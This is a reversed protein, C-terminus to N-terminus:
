PGGGCCGDSNRLYSRLTSNSPVMIVSFVTGVNLVGNPGAGDAKKNPSEISLAGLLGGVTATAGRGGKEFAAVLVQRRPDAKAYPLPEWFDYNTQVLAWDLPVYPTTQGLRLTHMGMMATYNHALVVGDATGALILYEPLLYDAAELYRAIGSFTRPTAVPGGGGTGGGYDVMAQRTILHTPGMAPHDRILALYTDRHLPASLRQDETLSAVGPTLATYVGAWGLFATAKAVVGGAGDVFDVDVTLNRTTKAADADDNRAHLITGDENRAILSTCARGGRAGGPLEPAAAAAASKSSSSLNFHKVMAMWNWAIMTDMTVNHGLSQFTSIMGTIEEYYTPFRAKTAATIVPLIVEADAAHYQLWLRIQDLLPGFSHEFGHRAIAERFVAEWRQAPPLSLDVVGTPAPKANDPPLSAPLSASAVAFIALLTVVVM